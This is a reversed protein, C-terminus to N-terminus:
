TGVLEKILDKDAMDKAKRQQKQVSWYKKQHELKLVYVNGPNLLANDLSTYIEAKSLDDHSLLSHSITCANMFFALLM